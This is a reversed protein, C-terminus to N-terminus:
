AVLGAAASRSGACHRSRPSGNDSKCTSISSRPRRTQGPPPMRLTLLVAGPHPKSPGPFSLGEPSLFEEGAVPGDRHDPSCPPPVPGSGSSAPLSSVRAGAGHTSTDLERARQGEGERNFSPTPHRTRPVILKEGAPGPPARSRKRKEEYEGEVRGQERAQVGEQHVSRRLVEWVLAM